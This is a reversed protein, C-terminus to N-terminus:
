PQERGLKGLPMGELLVEAVIKHSYVREPVERVQDIKKRKKAVKNAELRDELELRKKQHEQALKAWKEQLYKRCDDVTDFVKSGKWSNCLQCSAVYNLVSNNRSYAFPLAHDWVPSLTIEKGDHKFSQGFRFRCWFCCNKQRELHFKKDEKTLRRRLSQM